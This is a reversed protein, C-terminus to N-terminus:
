IIHCRFSGRTGSTYRIINGIFYTHTNVCMCLVICHYTINRAVSNCQQTALLPMNLVPVKSLATDFTQLDTNGMCFYTLRERGRQRRSSIREIVHVVLLMVSAAQQRSAVSDIEASPLSWVEDCLGIDIARRNDGGNGLLNGFIDPLLTSPETILYDNGDEVNPTPFFSPM